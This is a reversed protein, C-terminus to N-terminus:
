GMYSGLSQNADIQKTTFRKVQGNLIYWDFPTDSPTYATLRDLVGAFLGFNPYVIVYKGKNQLSIVIAEVQAQDQTKATLEIM